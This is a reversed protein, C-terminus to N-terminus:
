DGLVRGICGDGTRQMLDGVGVGVVISTVVRWAASAMQVSHSLYIHNEM